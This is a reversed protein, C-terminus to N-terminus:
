PELALVFLRSPSLSVRHLDHPKAMLPFGTVSHNVPVDDSQDLTVRNV